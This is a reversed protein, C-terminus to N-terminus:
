TRGTPMKGPARARIVSLGPAPQREGALRQAKGGDLDDLAIARRM